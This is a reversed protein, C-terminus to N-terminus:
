GISTAELLCVREYNLLNSFDMPKAILYGQAMDCGIDYLTDWEKQTEVGEAVCRVNFQHALEICSKIKARTTASESLHQVLPHYIKLERFAVRTLQHIGSFGNAFDDISLTFGNM